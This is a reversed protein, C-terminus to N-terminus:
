EDWMKGGGKRIVTTRKGKVKGGEPQTAAAGGPGYALSQQAAEPDWPNIQTASFSTQSM